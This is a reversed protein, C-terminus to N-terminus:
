AGENFYYYVLESVMWSGAIFLAFFYLTPDKGHPWAAMMVYLSAYAGVLRGAWKFSEQLMSLVIFEKFFYFFRYARYQRIITQDSIVELAFCVTEKLLKKLAVIALGYFIGPSPAIRYRASRLPSRPPTTVM